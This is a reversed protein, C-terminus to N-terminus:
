AATPWRRSARAEGGRHHGGSVRSQQGDVPTGPLMGESRARGLPLALDGAFDIALIAAVLERLRAEQDGAPALGVGALDREVAAWEELIDLATSRLSRKLQELRSLSEGLIRVLALAADQATTEPPSANTPARRTM